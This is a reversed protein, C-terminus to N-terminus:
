LLEVNHDILEVSHTNKILEIVKSLASNAIRNDTGINVVGLVARQWKDHGELEAISVNFKRRIRDKLSKLIARKEKLSHSYLLALDVKLIGVTM